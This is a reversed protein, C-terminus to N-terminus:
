ILDTSPVSTRHSTEPEPGAHDGSPRSIAKSRSPSFGPTHTTECSPPTAFFTDEPRGGCGLDPPEPVFTAHVGSALFSSTRSLFLVASGYAMKWIERSVSLFRGSVRGGMGIPSQQKATDGSRLVSANM